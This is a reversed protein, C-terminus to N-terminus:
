THIYTVLSETIGDIYYLGKRGRFQCDYIDNNNGSKFHNHTSKWRNSQSDSLIYINSSRSNKCIYEQFYNVICFIGHSGTARVKLPKHTNEGIIDNM